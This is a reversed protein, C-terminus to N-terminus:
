EPVFPPEQQQATPCEEKTNPPVLTMGKYQVSKLENELQNCKEQLSEVLAQLQANQMVFGGIMTTVITEINRAM